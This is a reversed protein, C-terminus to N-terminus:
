SGCPVEESSEAWGSGDAEIVVKMKECLDKADELSLAMSIISNKDGLTAPVILIIQENEAEKTGVRGVAIRRSIKCAEMKDKLSVM